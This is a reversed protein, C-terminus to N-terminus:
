SSTCMPPDAGDPVAERLVAVRWAGRDAPDGCLSYQRELEPGLVLDVHAGPEWAPLPEGLPHRLTLALVGEAAFERSAVVLETEYVSM